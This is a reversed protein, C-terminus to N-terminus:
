SGRHADAFRQLPALGDLVGTHAFALTTVTAGDRVLRDALGVLSRTDEAQDDSFIWKSAAVDGSTTADAADGLFLTGALLWATSGVTHGPIAYAKVQLEGAQVTREDEVGTVGKCPSAFAGFMRPLPGHFPTKGEIQPIERIGAYVTANPWEGCTAVHDPHGHTLFVAVVNSRDMGRKRLAADIPAGSPDNGADVLAVKGPGADVLFVSAYGDKIVTVGGPLVRGEPIPPNGMFTAALVIVPVALVALLGAGIGLLVKVRTTM